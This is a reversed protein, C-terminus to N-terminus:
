ALGEPENAARRANRDVHLEDIIGVISRDTPVETPLFPFSCEKGGCYYVTEGAGAGTADTCILQKGTPAGEPTIPQVLLLRQSELGANKVTCWVRGIVRGLYM